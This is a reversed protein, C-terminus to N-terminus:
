DSEYYWSKPWLNIQWLDYIQWVKQVPADKSLIQQQLFRMIQLDIHYISNKGLLLQFIYFLIGYVSNPQNVASDNGFITGLLGFGRGWRCFLYFCLCLSVTFYCFDFLM